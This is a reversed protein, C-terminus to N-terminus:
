TLTWFIYLSYIAVGISIVAIITTLCGENKEEQKEKDTKQPEAETMKM